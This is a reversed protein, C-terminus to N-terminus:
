SLVCNVVMRYDSTTPCNGGHILNSDFIVARGKKPTVRSHEKILGLPEGLFYKDYFITDGDADNVYYLLTKRGVSNYVGDLLRMGDTHPQQRTPGAQPLLLNAKIRQLFTDTEGMRQQYEAILPAIYQFFKSEIEGDRAFMHRFQIHEKFPEDIYYHEDLPYESVSWPFFTWPFEHSTLLRVISDQFEVSLFDDIVLPEM